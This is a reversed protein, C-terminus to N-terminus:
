AWSPVISNAYAELVCLTTDELCHSPTERALICDGNSDKAQYVGMRPEWVIHVMDGHCFATKGNVKCVNWTIGKTQLTLGDM